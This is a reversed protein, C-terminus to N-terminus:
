REHASAELVQRLADESMGDRQHVALPHDTPELVIVPRLANGRFYVDTKLHLTDPYGPLRNCLWGFHPGDPETRADGTELYRDFNPKSVSVWVGWMFWETEGAVPIELCGRVFFESDQIVCIDANLFSAAQEEPKRQTYHFPADFSLGPVGDHREGCTACIYSQM